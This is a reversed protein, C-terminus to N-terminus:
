APTGVPWSPVATLNIPSARGADLEIAGRAAIMAANDTCLDASPASFAFGERAAALAVKERLRSNCAVGGAITVGRANERQAALILKEILIDIVAAQYSAIFNPLHEETRAEPYKELHIAAATKVGSYSFDLSGEELRARPFPIAEPDGQAAIRDIVGGAPYPLGILKGIKDLAEGAADDRTQGLTLFTDWNDVRVLSTHGGSVILTVHPLPFDPATLRNSVAHGELHNVGVFPIDLSVALGKAYGV